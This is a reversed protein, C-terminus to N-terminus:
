FRQQDAEAHREERQEVHRHEPVRFLRRLQESSMQGDALGALATTKSASM